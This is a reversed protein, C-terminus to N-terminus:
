VAAKELMARALVAESGPVTDALENIRFRPRVSVRRNSALLLDLAPTSLPFQRQNACQGWGKAIERGLEADCTWEEERTATTLVGILRGEM